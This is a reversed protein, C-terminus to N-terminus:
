PDSLTPPSLTRTLNLEAKRLCHPLPNSNFTSLEFGLFHLEMIDVNENM